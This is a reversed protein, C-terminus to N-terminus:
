SWMMRLLLNLSLRIIHHISAYPASFFRNLSTWFWATATTDLILLVLQASILGSGLWLIIDLSHWHRFLPILLLEWRSWCPVWLMSNLCDLDNWIWCAWIVQVQVEHSLLVVSLWAIAVDFHADLTASDWWYLASMRTLHLYWTNHSIRVFGHRHRVGWSM